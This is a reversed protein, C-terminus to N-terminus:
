ATGDKGRWAGMSTVNPAHILPSHPPTPLAPAPLLVVINGREAAVRQSRAEYVRFAQETMAGSMLLMERFEAIDVQIEFVRAAAATEAEILRAGRRLTAEIEATLADSIAVTLRPPRLQLDLLRIGVSRLEHGVRQEIADAILGPHAIVLCVPQAAVVTTTARSVADAIRHEILHSMLHFEIPETVDYQVTVRVSMETRDLSYCRIDCHWAEPEISCVESREFGPIVWRLGPGRWHHPAELRFVVIATGSRVYRLSCGVLVAVFILLLVLYASM